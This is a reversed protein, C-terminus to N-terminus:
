TFPFPCVCICSSLALDVNKVSRVCIVCLHCVTFSNPLSRTSVIVSTDFLYIYNLRFFVTWPILFKVEM